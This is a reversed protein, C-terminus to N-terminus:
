IVYHKFYPWVFYDEASGGTGSWTAVSEHYQWQGDVKHFSVKEGGQSSYFYVTATKSGYSMVKFQPEEDWWYQYGIDGPAEFEHGFFGTLANCYIIPGVWLVVSLALVVCLIKPFWKKM